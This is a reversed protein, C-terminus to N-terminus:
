GTRTRRQAPRHDHRLGVREEEVRNGEVAVAEVDVQRQQMDSAQRTAVLQAWAQGVLQVVGRRTTEADLEARNDEELAQRVKSSNLGSTYLPQTVMATVSASQQYLKPVYPLYPAIGADLKLSISPGNAAKAQNVKERAARETEIAALLQPNNNDAADFAADVTAPMGPLEPEPELEGPSQGVM